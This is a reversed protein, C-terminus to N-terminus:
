HTKFIMSFLAMFFQKSFRKLISIFLLELCPHSLVILLLLWVAAFNSLPRLLDWLVRQSQSPEQAKCMWWLCIYIRAEQYFPLYCGPCSLERLHPCHGSFFCSQDELIGHALCCPSNAGCHQLLSRWPCCLLWSLVMISVIVDRQARIHPIILTAIFIGNNIVEPDSYKKCNNLKVTM